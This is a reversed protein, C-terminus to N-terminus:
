LVASRSKRKLWGIIIFWILGYFLIDFITGAIPIGGPPTGDPYLVPTIFSAPISILDNVYIRSSGYPMLSGILNILVVTVVGLLISIASRWTIDKYNVADEQVEGRAM